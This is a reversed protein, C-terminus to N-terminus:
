LVNAKRERMKRCDDLLEDIQMMPNGFLDEFAIKALERNHEENEREIRARYERYKNTRTDM